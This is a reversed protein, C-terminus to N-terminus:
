ISAGESGFLRYERFMQWGSASSFADIEFSRGLTRLSDLLWLIFTIRETLMEMTLWKIIIRM